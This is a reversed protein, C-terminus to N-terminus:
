MHYSIPQLLIICANHKKALLYGSIFQVQVVTFQSILLPTLCPIKFFLNDKHLSHSTVITKKSKFRAKPYILDADQLPCIVSTIHELTNKFPITIGHKICSLIKCFIYFKDLLFLFRAVKSIWIWVATLINQLSIHLAANGFCSHCKELILSINIYSFEELVKM